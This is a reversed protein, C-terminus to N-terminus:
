RVAGAAGAAHKVLVKHIAQMVGRPTDRVFFHDGLFTQMQFAGHTQERWGALHEDLV